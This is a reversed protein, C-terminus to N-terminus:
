KKFVYRGAKIFKMPNLARKEFWVEYHVHPGTSRGTSGLLGIKARHGVKQGKKVLTKNLHGYRSKFGNGHDIEVFRGYNGKWGAFVVKGPATARIASNRRGALDVGNHM